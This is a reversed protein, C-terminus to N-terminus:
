RRNRQRFRGPTEGTIRKFVVGLYEPHEFGCISAIQEVPLESTILLHRAKKVQVLRIEDQPSHGLLRRVGRELTSRSLPARAVVDKVSIGSCANERIYQLAIALARDEIAVIDTSQRVEIGIPPVLIPETQFPIDKMIQDLLEAARFGVLEANPIVSTLQPSCLQCSLVDNDVGIVAVEEPVLLNAQNCAEIVQQGRVDNCAMVAIPRPITALWAQLELLEDQWSKVQSGHWYSEYVSCSGGSSLIERTFGVERRKSWSEDIFGCYGFSSFGRELLHKAAMGGIALDDSRVHLSKPDGRRDTLEVFPIKSRKVAEDLEPTTSRSIVGDGDWNALWVPLEQTLDRQEAFVSWSDHLRMQRIIGSLLERGYQNSTEVILAVKRKM